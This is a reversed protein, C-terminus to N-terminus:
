RTLEKLADPNIYRPDMRDLVFPITEDSWGAEEIARRLDAAENEGALDRIARALHGYTTITMGDWQFSRDEEEEVGQVRTPPMVRRTEQPNMGEVLKLAIDTDLQFPAVRKIAEFVAVDSWGHDSLLRRFEAAEEASALAMMANSIMQVTYILDGKWEIVHSHDDTDIEDVEDAMCRRVFAVVDPPAVEVKPQREARIIAMRERHAIVMQALVVILVVVLVVVSYLMAQDSLAEAAIM